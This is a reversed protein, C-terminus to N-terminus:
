HRLEAPVLEAEESGSGSGDSSTEDGAKAKKLALAGGGAGLLGLAAAIALVIGMLSSQGETVEIGSSLARTPCHSEHSENTKADPHEKPCDGIVGSLSSLLGSKSVFGAVRCKLSSGLGTAKLVSPCMSIGLAEVKQWTPVVQDIADKYIKQKAMVDAVQLRRGVLKSLSAVVPGLVTKIQGLNSTLKM